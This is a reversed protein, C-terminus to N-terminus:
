GTIEFIRKDDTLDRIRDIRAGDWHYAIHRGQVPVEMVNPYFAAFCEGGAHRESPYVIGDREAARVERAFAQSATYDDRRLLASFDGGRLDDLVADIRGVLERMEAIWGPAEATAACFNQKHHVTEFLAAEYGNAAYYACFTGDHFRGPRDTSAHVFPAMVYSAVARNVRRARSV